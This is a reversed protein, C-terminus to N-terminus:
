SFSSSAATTVVNWGIVYAGNGVARAGTAKDIMKRRAWTLGSPDPVDPLADYLSVDDMKSLMPTALSLTPSVFRDPVMVLCAM